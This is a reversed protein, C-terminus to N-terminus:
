WRSLVDAIKNDLGRTHAYQLNIDSTASAYWINSACAALYPDRTKGTRLVSIVAENDCHILVRSSAWQRKFLRVAILINVMELHVITWNNYGRQIPLHYM